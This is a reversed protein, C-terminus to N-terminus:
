DVEAKDGYDGHPLDIILDSPQEYNLLRKKPEEPLNCINYNKCFM